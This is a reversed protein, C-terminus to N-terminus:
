RALSAVFEDVQRVVTSLYDNSEALSTSLQNFLRNWEDFRDAMALRPIGRLADQLASMQTQMTQAQTMLDSSTTKCTSAIQTIAAPDIQIPGSM